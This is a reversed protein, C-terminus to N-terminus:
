KKLAAILDAAKERMIAHEAARSAHALAQARDGAQAAAYAANYYSRAESVLEREIYGSYEASVEVADPTGAVTNRVTDLATRYADVNTRYCAAASPFLGAADTWRKQESRVLGLYWSADCAQDNLQLSKELDAAAEGMEHRDYRIIGSLLFVDSRVGAVAKSREIEDRAEDLRRQAHRNYARWYYADGLYWDELEIIRTASEFAEDPRELYSLMITRGLMAERHTPVLALTEDYYRLADKIKNFARHMGAVTFTVSPSRPFAEYAAALHPVIESRRGKGVAADALAYRGLFFHAEVYRPEVGLVEVLLARRSQVCAGIRYRVVLTSPHQSALQDLAADRERFDAYACSLSTQLYAAAPDALLPALQQRLAERVPAGLRETKIWGDYDEKSLGSSEPPIGGAVRLFLEGHEEPPLLPALIRARDLSQTAPLGLEKERLHLLVAARFAGRIAPPSARRALLADYVDLAQSLCTYCGASALADADALTPLPVRPGRAACGAALIVLCALGRTM